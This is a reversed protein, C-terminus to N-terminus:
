LAANRLRPERATQNSESMIQCAFFDPVRPRGSVNEFAAIWVQRVSFTKNPRGRNWLAM